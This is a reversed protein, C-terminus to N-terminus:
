DMIPFQEDDIVPYTLYMFLYAMIHLTVDIHGEHPLVSHSSLLSVETAIDIHGLEVMWYMFGILSQFYSELDPNLETSVDKGPEYKIAFPNPALM